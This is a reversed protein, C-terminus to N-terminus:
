KGYFQEIREGFIELAEQAIKRSKFSIGYVFANSNFWDDVIAKGKELTIGIKIKEGDWDAEWDGNRLKAFIQLERMLIFQCHVFEMSEKSEFWSEWKSLIGNNEIILEHEDRWAEKPSKATQLEQKLQDLEKQKEEILKQIQEKTKM